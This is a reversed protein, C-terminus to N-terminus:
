GQGQARHPVAQLEDREDRGRDTILLLAPLLTLTLIVSVLAGRSVLLGISSIYYISCMRGIIYGAVVIIVGSTLITPLAKKMAEKVAGERDLGARRLSRYQDCMLIGYDITAGMQISLCILYSIFFVPEGILESFGMTIWIAGEIVFVLLVPIKIARFSVTVILLIALLTILNVTRLDGSFAAAIDYASMPAGTVYVDSGYVAEAASLVAEMCAEFDEDGADAELEVLMRSYNPGEFATRAMDLQERLAAVTEDGGMMSGAADLLRDARVGTGFGQTMFFLSIVAPSQGTLEAVDQATYYKLAESGTTVMATIDGVAATGDARTIGMLRGALERQRDYDADDRGGPFLIVLPSSVGFRDNIYDTDGSTKDDATFSYSNNLNLYLGFLVAIVMVAALPRSIRLILAGLHEGGLRVPRHRTARLPKEMMLAVGPMMLFVCLMSIVIGKSLVMGIDFGFTFSMFVLSMLGAVTTMASSAIRMFCEALAKIMAEKATDGGDLYADYTHMLMIAYDISLALQLIASVAFTIFSVDPFILNTGMNIVISVAFVILLVAPELWAHSAFFLVGLVVVVALATVGIMETGVSKQLDLQAAASGGVWYRGAEPFAARLKLVAAAPDGDRLTVTVLTYTRGDATVTDAADCSALLVEPMDNMQDVYAGAQEPSIDAFMVRLQEASGFEEEMVRLARKTMTDESLYKTLDYNINTRGILGFCVVAILLIVLPLRYGAGVIARALRQKM